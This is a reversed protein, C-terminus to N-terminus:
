ALSMAIGVIISIVRGERGGLKRGVTLQAVAVFLVSFIVFDVWLYNLQYFRAVDAGQLPRFLSTLPNSAALVTFPPSLIYWHDTKFSTFLDTSFHVM